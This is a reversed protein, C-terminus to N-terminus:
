ELKMVINDMDVMLHKLIFVYNSDQIIELSNKISRIDHKVSKLEKEM